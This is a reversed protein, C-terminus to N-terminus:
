LLKRGFERAKESIEPNTAFDAGKVPTFPITFSQIKKGFLGAIATMSAKLTHFGSGEDGGATAVLALAPQQLCHKYIKKESDIKLLSYMRDIVAKIQASFGMFYVPTAFVILDQEPMRAIVASVEDRVICRYEASQQCGLCSTCGHARSEIRTTDIIEVQVGAEELGQSVWSVLTATNGTKRPSGMLMMAKRSM